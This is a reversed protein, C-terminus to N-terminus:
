TDCGLNTLCVYVYAICSNILTVHKFLITSMETYPKEIRRLLFRLLRVDGFEIERRPKILELEARAKNIDDAEQEDSNEDEVNSPAEADSDVSDGVLAFKSECTSIIAITNAFLKTMSRTSVPKLERPPLVSYAIEFNCENQATKCDTLKQRLSGKLSTLASLSLTRLKEIAVARETPKDTQRAIVEFKQTLSRALTSAQNSLSNAKPAKAFDPSGPQDLTSENHGSDSMKLSREQSNSTEGGSTEFKQEEKRVITGNSQSFFHGANELANATEDLTEITVQGLFGSSFEPFVFLNVVLIVGAAILIPYLIQTAATQTVQKATSLLTVASVVILLVLGVFLRPAYSRWFGHLMLVVAFFLGRIAYAAPPNVTVILSGLYVGLLSWALGILTGSVALTLAEAMQGFRRGPHGFVTAM